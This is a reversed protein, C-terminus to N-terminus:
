KVVYEQAGLNAYEEHTCSLLIIQLGRSAGLDLMQIVQQVRQRDTFAFADDFVVPLTGGYNEALIEATALRIATAVQERAGGSLSEFPTPYPDKSNPRVLTAESFGDGQKKIELKAGHEFMSVLYIGVRQLLPQTYQDDLAQTATKYTDALLKIAHAQDSAGQSVQQARTFEARLLEFQESPDNVGNARAQTQYLIAEKDANQQKNRTAHIARELRSIALDLNPPLKALASKTDRLTQEDIAVAKTQHDIASLLDAPTPYSKQLLELKIKLGSLLKEAKDTKERAQRLTTDAQDRITEAAQTKADLRGAEAKAAKTTKKLEEIQRSLAPADKDLQPPKGGLRALSAELSSITNEVQKLNNGDTGDGSAVDHKAKIDITQEIGARQTRALEAEAFTGIRHKLLLESLTAASEESKKQLSPLDEGGPTLQIKSGDPTVIVTPQAILVDEGSNLLTNGVKIGEHGAILKVRASLAELALRASTAEKEAKQLSKFEKDSIEPLTALKAKLADLAQAGAKANAVAQEMGLKSQQALALEEINLAIEHSKRAVALEVKAADYASVSALYAADAEQVDQDYPAATKEAANLDAKTEEIDKTTQQLEQLKRLASEAQVSQGKLLADLRTFELQQDRLVGAEAEQQALLVKSTESDRSAQELGDIAQRIKELNEKAAKFREEAEQMASEAKGAASGEKYDDNLGKFIKTREEQFLKALEADKNSSSLASGGLARLRANLEEAPLRTKETPNQFSQGQEIWLHAWSSTMTKGSIGSETGLLQSIAGDAKEGSQRSAGIEEFEVVGKLGAFKKYIRYDKGNNELFLEVEPIGAGDRPLMARHDGTQGKAALFLCRHIAEVITSKGSENRGGILQLKPHFDVTIERHIRYNRITVQKLRM